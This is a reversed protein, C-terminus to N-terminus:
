GQGPARLMGLIEGPEILLSDRLGVKGSKLFASLSVLLMAGYAVTSAISAGVLGQRPLLLANLGLNLVAGAFPAVITVPPMGQGGFHNMLIGNIGLAWVGPLLWRTAAVAGAFGPGYLAGIVPGALVWAAVCLLSLLLATHRTVRATFIERRDPSEAAVRPFLLMGVTVPVLLLTDAIQVTISYVGAAAAGLFYNVLLMDSRLVVFALLCAVYVRGGFGLMERFLGADFRWAFRVRRRCYAVSALGFAAGMGAFLVVAGPAGGGLLVLYAALLAFTIGKNATEFVNFAAVEHLGLLANQFYFIMFQFPLTGATLLILGFPIGPFWAPRAVAVGCAIAGSAIGLALSLWFANGLVAGARGPERAVYYINGSHLGLNGFQLALGTLVSLIALLGRGDPGLWRATIVSSALGIAITAGRSILSLTVSRTFTM